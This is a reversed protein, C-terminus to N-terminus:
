PRDEPPAVEPKPNKGDFRNETGDLLRRINARHTYIVFVFLVSGIGVYVWDKLLAGVAVSCGVAVISSLSVYRSITLVLAFIIFGSAAVLPSAGFVMGLSTAIGKGGKFRLFPSACHGAVAALGV